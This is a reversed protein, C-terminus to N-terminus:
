FNSGTDRNGASSAASEREEREKQWKEEKAKAEAKLTELESKSKALGDAAGATKGFTEELTKQEAELGSIIRNTEEQRSPLGKL